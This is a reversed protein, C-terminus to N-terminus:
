GGILPSSDLFHSARALLASPASTMAEIDPQPSRQRRNLKVILSWTAASKFNALAYFWEMDPVPCGLTTAYVDFLEAPAPTLGTYVTNRRYTDPDANIVFWGLDVRPDGISWIEWDIIAAIHGDTALLNGLRFDGHCLTNRWPSPLTSRLDAAVDQWGPVLAPEVTALLRCWRDIEEALTIAPEDGLGLAAPELRHLQALVSAANRLREAMVAPDGVTADADFLPEVSDGDLFTMVFMPPVEPPDGSDQLLIEPVPVPCPRLAGIARAQRLVDRHLVPDLGPPAVKVVVPTGGGLTGAFTLSSAGGTLRRLGTVGVGALRRHLQDLQLETLEAM